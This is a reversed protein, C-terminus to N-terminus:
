KASADGKKVAKGDRVEYDSRENGNADLVRGDVIYAGGPVTEDPRPGDFGQGGTKPTVEKSADAKDADGARNADNQVRPDSAGLPRIDGPKPAQQGQDQKNDAM